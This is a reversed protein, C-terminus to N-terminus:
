DSRRLCSSYELRKRLLSPRARRSTSGSAAREPHSRSTLSPTPEDAPLPLGGCGLKRGRTTPTRSTPPARPATSCVHAGAGRSLWRRRTRDRRWRPYAAAQVPQASLSGSATWRLAAANAILLAQPRRQGRGRLRAMRRAVAPDEGELMVALYYLSADVDSGRTAKIWASVFDYHRDGQRDYDLAKRQLADEVAAVGIEEGGAREAARELAELAVRADGGSREALM